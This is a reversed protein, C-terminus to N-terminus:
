LTILSLYYIMESKMKLVIFFPSALILVAIQIFHSLTHHM